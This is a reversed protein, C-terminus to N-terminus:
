HTTGALAQPKSTPYPHPRPRLSSIPHSHGDTHFLLLLLSYSSAGIGHRLLSLFIGTHATRHLATCHPTTCYPVTRTCYLREKWAALRTLFALPLSPFFLPFFPIFSLRPLKQRLLLCPVTCFSVTGYSTSHEVAPASLSPDTGKRCLFSIQDSLSEITHSTDLNQLYYFQFDSLIELGSQISYPFLNKKLTSRGLAKQQRTAKSSSGGSSKM